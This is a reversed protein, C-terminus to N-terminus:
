MMPRTNASAAASAAPFPNQMTTGPILMPPVVTRPDNNPAVNMPSAQSVIPVLPQQQAQAMQQSMQMLDMVSPKKNAMPRRTPQQQPLAQPMTLLPAQQQMFDSQSFMPRTPQMMPQTPQMMPQTPQMMAQTFPSAQPMFPTQQMHPLMGQPAIMPRMSPQYIPMQPQMMMNQQQINAWLLNSMDLVAAADLICLHM